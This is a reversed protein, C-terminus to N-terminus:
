IMEEFYDNWFPNEKKILNIKWERRWKKIQKERKIAEKIYQYEEYYVLKKIKYKATFSNPNVQLKHQYVRSFLNNTVGVYLVKNRKCSLIYLYYAHEKRM